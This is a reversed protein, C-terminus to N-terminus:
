SKTFAWFVSPGHHVGHHHLSFNKQTDAISLSNIQNWISTENDAVARIPPFPGLELSVSWEPEEKIKSWMYKELRNASKAYTTTENNYRRCNNFILKADRIFDEVTPYSDKEHKEEMTALDM